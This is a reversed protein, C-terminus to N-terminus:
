NFTPIIVVRGPWQRELATARQMRFRWFLTWRFERRGGSLGHGVTACVLCSKFLLQFRCFLRLIYDAAAECVGAWKEREEEEILHHSKCREKPTPSIYNGAQLTYM